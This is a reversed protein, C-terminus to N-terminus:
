AARGRARGPGNGPPPPPTVTPEPRLVPAEHDLAARMDAIEADHRLYRWTTVAHQHGLVSQIVRLDTGAQYLREATSHRLAHASRGDWPAQKLGADRVWRSVMQSMYHAGVGGGHTYAVILPGARRGREALWVAVHHRVTEPVPLIREHRGKGVVRVLGEVWDFDALQLGAVEGARLGMGAMLAIIARARADPLVNWLAEIQEDKMARPAQRPMRPLRIRASPDERLHGEDVCWVFFARVESLRTRLTSASVEMQALWAAVTSRDIAGVTVNRGAYAILNEVTYTRNRLTMAALLHRHARRYEHLARSAVM